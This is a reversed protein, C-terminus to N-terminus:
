LSIDHECDNRPRDRDAGGGLDIQMECDTVQAGVAIVFEGGDEV